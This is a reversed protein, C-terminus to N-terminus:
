DVAILRSADNKLIKWLKRWTFGCRGLRCLVYMSVMVMKVRFVSRSVMVAKQKEAREKEERM